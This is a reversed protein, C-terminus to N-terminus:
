LGSSQSNISIQGLSLGQLGRQLMQSSQAKTQNPGPGVKPWINLYTFLFLLSESLSDHYVEKQKKLSM